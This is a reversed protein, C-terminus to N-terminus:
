TCLIYFCVQMHGKVGLIEVFVGKQSHGKHLDSSAILLNMLACSAKYFFCKYCNLVSYAKIKIELEM